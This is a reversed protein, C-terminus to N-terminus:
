IKALSNRYYENLDQVIRGMAYLAAEVFLVQQNEPLSAFIGPLLGKDDAGPKFKDMMEHMADPGLILLKKCLYAELEAVKTRQEESLEAM